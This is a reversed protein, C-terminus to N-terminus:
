HQIPSLVSIPQVCPFSFDMCIKFLFSWASNVQSVLTHLSLVITYKIFFFMPMPTYVSNLQIVITNVSCEHTELNWLPVTSSETRTPRSATDNALYNKINLIFVKGEGEAGLFGRLIFTLTGCEKSVDPVM